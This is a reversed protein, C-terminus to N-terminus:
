SSSTFIYRRLSIVLYFFVRPWACVILRSHRLRFNLQPIQLLRSSRRAAFCSTEQEFMTRFQIRAIQVFFRQAFRFQIRKDSCAVVLLKQIWPVLEVPRFAHRLLRWRSRFRDPQHRLIWIQNAPGHYDAALLDDETKVFLRVLLQQFTRSGDM